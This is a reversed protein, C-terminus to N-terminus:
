FVRIGFILFNGTGGLQSEKAEDALERPRDLVQRFPRHGQGRQRHDHVGRRGEQRDPYSM